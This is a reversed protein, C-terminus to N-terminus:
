DFDALAGALDDLAVRTVARNALAEAYRPNLELARDFDTLASAYDGLRHRVIGRNNLAEPYLPRLRLAHDFDALAGVSDGRAYRAAARNNLQEPGVPDPGVGDAPAPGAGRWFPESAEADIVPGPTEM